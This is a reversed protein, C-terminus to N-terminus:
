SIRVWLTHPARSADYSQAYGMCKWTGSLTVNQKQYVSSHSGDEMNVGNQIGGWSAYAQVGGPSLNSGATTANEAITHFAFTTLGAWVYSNVAGYTTSASVISSDFNDNGRIYSVM